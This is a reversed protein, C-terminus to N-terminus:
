QRSDEAEDEKDEDLKIKMEKLKDKLEKIRFERGIFLKNYHELEANKEELERTREKVLEELNHRHKRIETVDIGSSLLHRIVGDDDRIYSNYWSITKMVGSKTIIENDFHEVGEM